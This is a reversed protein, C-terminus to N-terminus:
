KVELLLDRKKLWSKLARVALRVEGESGVRKLMRRLQLTEIRTVAEFQRLFTSAQETSCLMRIAADFYLAAVQAAWVFLLNPHPQSRNIGLGGLIRLIAPAADTRM